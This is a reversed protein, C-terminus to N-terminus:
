SPGARDTQADRCLRRSDSCARIRPISRPRGDCRALAASADPVPRPLHRSPCVMPRPLVPGSRHDRHRGSPDMRPKRVLRLRTILLVPGRRVRFTSQRGVVPIHHLHLRRVVRQVGRPHRLCFSPGEGGSVRIGELGHRGAAGVSALRLLGPASLVANTRRDARESTGPNDGAPDRRDGESGQCRPRHLRPRPVHHGLGDRGGDHAVRVGPGRIRGSCRGHPLRAGVLDAQHLPHTRLNPSWRAGPERTRAFYCDGYRLPLSEM